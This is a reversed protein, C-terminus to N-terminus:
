ARRLVLASVTSGDGGVNVALGVEAGDVKVGPFDGRLQMTVEAVQYVGTAGVPHGRAKLGGSPNATPRDGPHFRGEAVLKAARGKEAFGLEELLLIANITFADHIEMVDIKSPEVGAMRYAQEAAKRAAPMGDLIERNSLEVTDVALGAGAIEVIPKEPLRKAADESVLLVAAAGDGIPSSDLLRIPDAIVQSRAVDERTIRRRIQAYPNSLANEHMMVPWESMEDRTVGYKEMYYRMMLANLGTFTAGYYLEYEADAAQALGATVIATPYDTMKEVGVVLVSDVLGSRILAFGTYVGAGGSGCAAEVHLAPRYRLGLGAAVYAGLNDQEQLKSALMSTVIVADPKIGADDIARFAAEAALDLIGKDYHRDIKTMGVGAVYVRPM